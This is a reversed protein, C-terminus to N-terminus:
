NPKAEVTPVSAISANAINISAKILRRQSDIILHINHMIINEYCRAWACGSGTANLEPGIGNFM